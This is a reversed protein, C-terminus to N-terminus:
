RVIGLVVLLPIVVAIIAEGAIFGSALPIMYLENSRRDRRFWFRDVVGGLRSCSAHTPMDLPLGAVGIREHDRRPGEQIQDASGNALHGASRRANNTTATPWM